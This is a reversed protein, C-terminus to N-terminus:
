CKSLNNEKLYLEWLEKNAKEAELSGIIFCIIKIEKFETKCWSTTNKFGELVPIIEQSSKKTEGAYSHLSRIKKIENFKKKDYYLIDEMPNKDNSSFGMDIKDILLNIKYQPYSQETIKKFNPHNESIIVEGLFKPSRRSHIIDIIEVKNDQKVPCVDSNLLHQSTTILNDTLNLFSIKGQKMKEYFERLIHILM